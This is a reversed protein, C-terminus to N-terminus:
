EKLLETRAKIMALLTSPMAVGVLRSRVDSIQALTTCESHAAPNRVSQIFAIQKVFKKCFNAFEESLHTKIHNKLLNDVIHGYAGLMAKNELLARVEVSKNAQMFTLNLIREDKQALVSILKKVLMYCEQEFCKAYRLAVASFDFLKDGKCAHFELEAYILNDFSDPHMAYLYREGFTYDILTQKQRLFEASKFLQLFHRENGEFYCVEEKQEVLLPYVYTNGYLAYTHNEYEPTTFNALHKDRVRVFDDRVIERLDNIFFYGEVNLKKRKYYSPVLEDPANPAIAVVKAVYLSAYDTLFLQLFGSNSSELLASLTQLSNNQPSQLATKQEPSNLSRQLATQEPANPTSLNQSLNAQSYSNIGQASMNESLNEQSNTNTASSNAQTNASVGLNAQSNAEFEDKLKSRVKGFAVQGQTKLLELHAEIVNNQYYPNYLILLDAMTDGKTTM